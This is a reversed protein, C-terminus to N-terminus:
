RPSVAPAIKQNLLTEPLAQTKHLFAPATSERIILKTPVVISESDKRCLEKAMLRVAQAAIADFDFALTTLPPSEWCSQRFNEYTIVSVEEPIQKGLKRLVHLLRAPEHTVDIIATVGSDILGAICADLTEEQYRENMVTDRIGLRDAIEYFRSLGRNTWRLPEGSSEPRIRAIKRHGLSFLHELVLESEGEADPLVSAIGELADPYDNIAVVALNKIIDPLRGSLKNYGLFFIGDVFLESLVDHNDCSVLIMNWKRAKIERELIPLLSLFNNINDYLM